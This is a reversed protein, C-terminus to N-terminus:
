GNGYSEELSYGCRSVTVICKICDQGLNTWSMSVAVSNTDTWEMSNYEVTNPDTMLLKELLILLETSEM